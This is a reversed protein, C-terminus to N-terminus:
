EPASSDSGPATITEPAEIAAAKPRTGGPKYGGLYAASAGLVIAVGWAAAGTLVRKKILVPLAGLSLWVFLKAIIFPAFGTNLRAILGFGAVFVVLMGIGHAISALKNKTTGNTTALVAGIGTFLLIVGILHLLKYFPYSMASTLWLKPLFRPIKKRDAADTWLHFTEEKGENEDRTQHM